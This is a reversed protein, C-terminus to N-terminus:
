KRIKYMAVEVAFVPFNHLVENDADFPKKM